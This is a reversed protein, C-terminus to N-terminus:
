TKAPVRKIWAVELKFPGAQKDGLLFGVANVEGPTVAGADKIVEGFSTAEFKDLPVTVEIWHDQKTPVAVRYSFARMRNAVYLNLSYERTVISDGDVLGLAKPKTRM